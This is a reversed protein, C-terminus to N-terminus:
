MEPAAAPKQNNITREWIDDIGIAIDGDKGYVSLNQPYRPPYEVCPIKEWAWKIAMDGCEQSKNIVRKILNEDYLGPMGLLQECLEITIVSPQDQLYADVGESIWSKIVSSVNDYADRCKQRHEESQKNLMLALKLMHNATRKAHESTAFEDAFHQNFGKGTTSLNDCYPKPNCNKGVYEVLGKYFKATEAGGFINAYVEEPSLSYLILGFKKFNAVGGMKRIVVGMKHSAKDFLRDDDFKNFNKNNDWFHAYEHELTNVLRVAFALAKMKLKEESECVPLKIYDINCVVHNDASNYFAVYDDMLDLSLDRFVVPCHNCFKEQMYAAYDFAFTQYKTQIDSGQANILDVLDKYLCEKIEELKRVRYKYTYEKNPWTLQALNIKERIIPSAKFEPWGRLDVEQLTSKAFRKAINNFIKM